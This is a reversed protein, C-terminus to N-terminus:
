FENLTKAKLCVQSLDLVAEHDYLWIDFKKVCKIVDAHSHFQYDRAPSACEFIIYLKKLNVLWITGFDCPFYFFLFAIVEM